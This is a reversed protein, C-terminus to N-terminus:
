PIFGNWFAELHLFGALKRSDMHEIRNLVLERYMGSRVTRSFNEGTKGSLHKVLKPVNDTANKITVIFVEDKIEGSGESTLAGLLDNLRTHIRELKTELFEPEINGRTSVLIGLRAIETIYSELEDIYSPPPLLARPARGTGPFLGEALGAQLQWDSFSGVLHLIVAYWRIQRNSLEPLRNIEDFVSQIVRYEEGREGVYRYQGIHHAVMEEIQREYQFMTFYKSQHVM